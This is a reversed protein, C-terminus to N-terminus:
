VSSLGKEGIYIKGDLPLPRQLSPYRELFIDAADAFAPSIEIQCLPFGEHDRRVSNGSAELWKNWRLQQHAKCSELSDVGEFNKIPSFEEERIAEVIIPHYAMPLADFIFHEFKTGKVAIQQKGDEDLAYIKKHACHVPLSALHDPQVIRQLFSTSLLHAAINGSSYTLSGDAERLNLLSKPANSYEVVCLKAKNLCFLGIKEEARYKRVMKSSFESSRAVHFGIFAPDLCYLLPNDIQFYSCIEIGKAAIKTLIEQAQLAEFVGGHGNPSLALAYEKELLLKGQSDVAPLQGQPFCFVEAKNLGFYHHEELFAVIASHNGPSTMILWPITVGYNQQAGLIKEAFVQFLSKKKLPTIPLMGKVMKQGMRSASGGAVTIVGVKGQRLTDQGVIKAKQWEAIDGGRSPHLIVSPPALDNIDLKSAKNTSGANRGWRSLASLDITSLEQLLKKQHDPTLADWFRFVQSQGALKFQLYLESKSQCM